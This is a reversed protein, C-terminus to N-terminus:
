LAFNGIINAMVHLEPWKQICYSVIEKQERPYSKIDGSIKEASAISISLCKDSKRHWRLATGSNSCHSKRNCKNEVTCWGCLLRGATTCSICDKFNSCEEIPLQYVQVYICLYYIGVITGISGLRTGLGM